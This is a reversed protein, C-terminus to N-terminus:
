DHRPNWDLCCFIYSENAYNFQRADNEIEPIDGMEQVSVSAPTEIDVVLALAREKWTMAIDFWMERAADEREAEREAKLARKRWHLAAVTAVAAILGTAIYWEIM